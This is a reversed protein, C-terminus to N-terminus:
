RPKHRPAQGGAQGAQSFFLGNFWQPVAPVSFVSSLSCFRSREESCCPFGVPLRGHAQTEAKQRRGEVRQGRDETRQGRDETRQGRKETGETGRHNLLGRLTM